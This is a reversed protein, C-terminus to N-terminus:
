FITNALTCSCSSSSCLYLTPLNAFSNSYPQTLTAKWVKYFCLIRRSSFEIYVWLINLASSSQDLIRAEKSIWLACSFGRPQPSSCYSTPRSLCPTALKPCGLTATARPVVLNMVPTGILSTVLGSKEPSLM